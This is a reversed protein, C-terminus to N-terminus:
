REPGKRPKPRRAKPKPIAREQAEWQMRRADYESKAPRGPEPPAMEAQTVAPAPRRDKRLQQLRVKVSPSRPAPGAEREQPLQAMDKQPSSPREVSPAERQVGTNAARRLTTITGQCASRFIVQEKEPFMSAQTQLRSELAAIDCHRYFFHLLNQSLLSLNEQLFPTFERQLTDRYEEPVDAFLSNVKETNPRYADLNAQMQELLSGGGGIALSLWYRDTQGDKMYDIKVKVAQPTLGARQYDQDVQRVYKEAQSLSMQKGTPFHEDMSEMVTVIPEAEPDLSAAPAEPGGEAFPPKMLGDVATSIDHAFAKWKDAVARVTCVGRKFFGTFLSASEGLLDKVDQKLNGTIEKMRSNHEM